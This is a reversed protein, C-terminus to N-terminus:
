KTANSRSFDDVQLPHAKVCKKGKKWFVIDV